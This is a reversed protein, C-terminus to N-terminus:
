GNTSDKRILDVLYLVLNDQEEMRAIIDPYKTRNIKINFQRYNSKIYANRYQQLAQYTSQKMTTGYGLQLLGDGTVLYKKKTNKM